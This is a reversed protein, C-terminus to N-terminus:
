FIITDRLFYRNRKGQGTMEGKREEELMLAADIANGFGDSGAAQADEAPLVVRKLFIGRRKFGREFEEPGRCEV